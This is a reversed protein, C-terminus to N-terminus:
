SQADAWARTGKMKFKQKQPRPPKQKARRIREKEAWEETDQERLSIHRTVDGDRIIKRCHAPRPPESAHGDPEDAGLM